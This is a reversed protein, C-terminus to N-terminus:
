NAIPWYVGFRIRQRPFPYDPVLLNGIQVTTGSFINEYAFFFTAGRVDGEAGIDVAASESVQSSADEPLVLLGTPTHLRLGNMSGWTRGRIYLDLDLDSQFLLARWGLRGSAWSDPMSGEWLAGAASTPAKSSQVSGSLRLYLGRRGDDRWRLSATVTSRSRNGTMESSALEGLSATLQHIIADMEQLHSAELDWIVPGTSTNVALRAM